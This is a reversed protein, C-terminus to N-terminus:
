FSVGLGGQLLLDYPSDTLPRAFYEYTGGFSIYAKAGNAFRAVNVKFNLQLMVRYDSVDLVRANEITNAPSYLIHQFWLAAMLEVAEQFFKEEYKIRYSAVANNNSFGQDNAELALIGGTTEEYRHGVAASIKLQHPSERGFINYIAGTYENATFALAKKTDRGISAYAFVSWHDTLFVEEVGSILFAHYTSGDEELLWTGAAIVELEHKTWTKKISGTGTITGANVNGMSGSGTADLTFVPDKAAQPTVLVIESAGTKCASRIAEQIKPDKAPDLGQKQFSETLSSECNQPNLGQLVGVQVDQARATSGALTCAIGLTFGFFVPFRGLVNRM